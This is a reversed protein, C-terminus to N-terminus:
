SHTVHYEKKYNNSKIDSLVATALTSLEELSGNNIIHIDCTIDNRDRETPDTADKQGVSPRIIEIIIGGASHIVDADASFRAGSIIYLPCNNTQAQKSRLVMEDFWTTPAIKHYFYGGFWQLIARHRSKSEETIVENKLTSDSQTAKIYDFLKIYDAENSGIDAQTISLQNKTIQKHLKEQIINTLSNLWKNIEILDTSNPLTKKAENALELELYAQATGSLDKPVV